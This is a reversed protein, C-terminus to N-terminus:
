VLQVTRLFGHCTIFYGPRFTLVVMDNKNVAQYVSKRTVVTAEAYPDGDKAQGDRSPGDYYPNSVSNCSASDSESLERQIEEELTHFSCVESSEAM